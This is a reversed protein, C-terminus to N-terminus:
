TSLRQKICNLIMPLFDSSSGRLFLGDNSRLAAKSFINAEININIISGGRNLVTNVVQNPLNTSGTTGVVILLATTDAVRLSSEFRYHQENYYEDFFLVHPRTISGCSPCTLIKLESQSLDTRKNRILKEIPLPYIESTCEKLCRMSNLNGHIQFTRKLSNGARLHLGDINQTILRFRDVLFEEMEAIANHGSNPAAKACIGFRYLYWKWLEEPNKHLMEATAMETPMYNSSGITWYGDKGRFTPIGSDASIGAGTLVTIYGDSGLARDVTIKIQEVQSIM